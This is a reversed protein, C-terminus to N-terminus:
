WQKWNSPFDVMSAIGRWNQYVIQLSATQTLSQWYRCIGWFASAGIWCLRRILWRYNSCNRILAYLAKVNNYHEDLIMLVDDLTIDTSSSQVQEGPYSQLSRITYPLLTQDRCGACWYVTLDWRWSQYTVADKVDEDKFIPLNIKMCKEEWYQRGWRSHWPRDSHDSRPLMLSTTSLSSRDSEFGHDPSPSPCRPSAKLRKTEQQMRLRLLASPSNPIILVATELYTRQPFYGRPM